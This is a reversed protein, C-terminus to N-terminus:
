FTSAQESCWQQRSILSGSTSKGSHFGDAKIKGDDRSADTCGSYCTKGARWDPTFFNAIHDNSPAQYNCPGGPVIAYGQCVELCEARKQVICVTDTSGSEPSCRVYKHMGCRVAWWNGCNADGPKWFDPHLVSIKLEGTKVCLTAGVYAGGTLVSVPKCDSKLRTGVNTCVGNFIDPGWINSFYKGTPCSTCAWSWHGPYVEVGGELRMHTSHTEVCTPCDQHCMGSCVSSGTPKFTGPACGDCEGWLRKSSAQGTDIDTYCWSSVPYGLPESSPALGSQCASTCARNPSSSGRWTTYNPATTPAPTDASKMYCWNRTESDAGAIQFGGTLLGCNTGDETMYGVCNSDDDCAEACNTDSGDSQVTSSSTWPWGGGANNLGNPRSGSSTVCFGNGM